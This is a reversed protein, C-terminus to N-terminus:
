AAGLLRALVGGAALAIGLSGASMALAPRWGHEARLAAFTAVCPVSVSVVVAYVFLQAPSMFHALNSAQPGFQVVALSVLLQLALEKRLFGFLLALGAVSPLGLWNRVVPDTVTALPWVLGSEYLFGLVLSGVLMFPAAETVFARFRAWARAAVLAPVPRRLPALELVLPPQRGPIMANAAVGGGVTLVAVVGFAALAAGPGVFPALAGVIVASRASCPTMTALFSALLRERRTALVRTGYIAPVNCGTAAILPIAARGPLGLANFLRDMLVAATTLYGSDELVALLVYFTLVYPIGVSLVALMGGDLAWLLTHAVIPQPVLAPVLAALLPSATAGWAATLADSLVGGVVMMTLLTGTVLAAFLPIGPWAQTSLRTLREGNSERPGAFAPSGAAVVQGAWRGAIQWRLPELRESLEIAAAGRPSLLSRRLYVGVGTPDLAAAGLSAGTSLRRGIRELELELSAGYVAAPVTGRPSTTGAAFARRQAARRVAARVASAVGAGTRGSTAIVPAALLQSLRGLDLRMHQRTAEDALNAAVVLPLGLDRCALVLPIHRGLDTSDVVLLIADPAVDLLLAWAPDGSTPRDHLSLTGPLDVLWASRSGTSVRRWEIGVTTGPANASNAYRATARAFLTSKGVNPRGVLAVVPLDRAGGDAAPREHCGSV